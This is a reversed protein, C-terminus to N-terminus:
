QRLKIYNDRDKIRKKEGCVGCMIGLDGSPLMELDNSGCKVCLKNKRRERYADRKKKNKVKRSLLKREDFSFLKNLRDIVKDDRDSLLYLRYKRFLYIGDKATNNIIDTFLGRLKNFTLSRMMRVESRINMFM